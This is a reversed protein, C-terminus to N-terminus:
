VTRWDFLRWGALERGNTIQVRRDEVLVMNGNLYVAAFNGSLYGNLRDHMIFAISIRAPTDGKRAAPLLTRNSFSQAPVSCTTDDAGTAANRQKGWADYADSEALAGTEDTLAATSGLHDLVFYRVHVTAGTTTREAVIHGDVTIYNRWTVAGTIPQFREAMAGLSADNLYLTTG